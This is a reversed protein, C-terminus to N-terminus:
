YEHIRFVSQIYNITNNWIYIKKIKLLGISRCFKGNETLVSGKLILELPLKEHLLSHDKEIEKSSINTSCVISV